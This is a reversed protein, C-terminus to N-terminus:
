DSDLSEDVDTEGGFKDRSEVNAVLGDVVVVVITLGVCFIRSAEV